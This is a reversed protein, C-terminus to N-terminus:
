GDQPEERELIDGLVDSRPGPVAYVTERTTQMPNFDRVQRALHVDEAPTMDVTVTTAPGVRAAVAAPPLAYAIGDGENEGLVEDELAEAYERMYREADGTSGPPYAENHILEITLTVVTRRM